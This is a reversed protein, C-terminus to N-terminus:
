DLLSRPNDDKSTNWVPFLITEPMKLDYMKENSFWFMESGSGGAQKAIRRLNEAREESVCVTLVRFNSIGLKQKHGGELRWNWYGKYKGLMRELTMTSRDAELFFHTFYEKSEITFFADPAIPLREGEFQVAGLPGTDKWVALKHGGEKKLALDLVLRFDSVMLAHRM